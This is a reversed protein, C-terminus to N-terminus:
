NFRFIFVFKRTCDNPEDSQDLCDPIGNCYKDLNICRDKTSCEFEYRKCPLNISTCSILTYLTSLLYFWYM